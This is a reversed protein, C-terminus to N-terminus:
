HVAVGKKRGAQWQRFFTPWAPDPETFRIGMGCMMSHRPQDPVQTAWVVEGNHWVSLHLFEIRLILRTGAGLVDNAKLCIGGESINDVVAKRKPRDVGYSVDLRARVRAHRRREPKGRVESM